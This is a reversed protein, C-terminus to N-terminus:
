EKERRALSRYDVAALCVVCVAGSATDFLRSGLRFMGRARFEPLLLNTGVATPLGDRYRRDLIATLREVGWETTKEAGVDDLLLTTAGVYLAIKNEPTEAWDSPGEEALGDDHVWGRGGSPRLSDLLEATAEYRVPKGEELMRWGIAQLLHSKGVGPGGALVLFPASRGEAFAGAMQSAEYLGDGDRQRFSEFTRRAGRPLNARKRRREQFRRQEEEASACDCFFWRGMAGALGRAELAELM